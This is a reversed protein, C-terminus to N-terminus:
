TKFDKGDFRCLGGGQTGFWLYGNQSQMISNVSSNALGNKTSFKKFNYLQASVPLSAILFLMLLSSSIYFRLNRYLMYTLLL